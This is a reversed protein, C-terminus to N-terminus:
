TKVLKNTTVKISRLKARAAARQLTLIEQRVAAAGDGAAGLFKALMPCSELQADFDEAEM